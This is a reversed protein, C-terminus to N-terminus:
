SSKPVIKYIVGNLDVLYLEGSSDVGFSSPTSHSSVPQSQTWTGDANETLGWVLGSCYDAYLYVNDLSPIAAGHYVFGGTVACSNTSAHDYETIPL